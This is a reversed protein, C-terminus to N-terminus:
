AVPTGRQRMMRPVVILAAGYVALAVFLTSPRGRLLDEMLVKAGLLVLLPYVLTAGAAFREDFRVRALLFAAAAVVTTRLAALPGADLGGGVHPVVSPGIAAVLAGCATWTMLAVLVLRPLREVAQIAITTRPLPWLTCAAMAVFAVVQVMTIAPWAGGATGVMGTTAVGLLGSAIAAAMLYATCHLALTWRSFTRAAIASAAALAAYTLAAGTQGITLPAGVVVFTLALSAYFFFNRAPRNREVFAFAVGYGSVGFALALMGLTSVNAGTVSTLYVAGGFGVVIVAISQFVEFPIVSRNLFLTRAAFSGLYATFLLLQVGFAALTDLGVSARYTVGSVMGAALLAIPWRLLIWQFGYGLWLAAIGLFILLVSYSVFGKTAIGLVVAGVAASLGTIWALHEARRGAAVVFGASAFGGLLAAGIPAPTVGFRFSAEWLMPITILTSALAHFTASTEDRARASAMMWMAAYVLGAAVGALAPLVQSETLARLFYAGGLVLLTRGVLAVVGQLTLGSEAPRTNKEAVAADPATGGFSTADVRAVMALMGELAAVRREMATMAQRLNRMEGALQSVNEDTLRDVGM